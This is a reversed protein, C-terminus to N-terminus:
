LSNLQDLKSQFEEHTSCALLSEALPWLQDFNSHIIVDKVEALANPHMSFEELGLGLLLKTFQIDGAMEGCMSVPINAEKGTKIVSAILKIVAPNLPDYLYNVQDDIRDIALTYQILDNTGISLFDLNKCLMVANIAAAPVEIMGGVKVRPDFALGEKSLQQCVFEIQQRIQVIEQYNSIMPLMIRLPGHASARLIARLQPLFINPDQLCLRIARLGLAPNTVINGDTRGGDVQKDAGLDLTRITLMKGDLKELIRCYTLYQEEEDPLSDRNMYLYETRYLGVGDAGYRNMAEVDEPLEINAQLSVLKGDITVAPVDKNERHHEQLQLYERKIFLYHQLIDTEPNALLVGQNGDLIVTEADNILQRAQHLGVIAPIRLSRALIATHSTPGGGETVFAAIGQHQMLVTDAPSLDDAVIIHGSYRLEHRHNVNHYIPSALLESQISTVVHDIDDRRTRLYPDDIEDFVKVLADRQLKVAWEANCGKERIIDVPKKSLTSDDLMLLHTNIFESIDSQTQRPIQDRIHCLEKKVVDIARQFRLVEEEILNENLVYELVELSDRQVVHVPGIAIGNSAGTGQLVLTM